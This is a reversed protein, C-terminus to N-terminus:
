VSSRQWPLQMGWRDVLHAKTVEFVKAQAQISEEVATWPQGELQRLLTAKRAYYM